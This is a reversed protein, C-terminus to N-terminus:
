DIAGSNLSASTVVMMGDTKTLIYMMCAGTSASARCRIVGQLILHYPCVWSLIQLDEINIVDFHSNEM